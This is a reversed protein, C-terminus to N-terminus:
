KRKNKARKKAAQRAEEEYRRLRKETSSLNMEKLRKAKATKAIKAAKAVKNAKYLGGAVGGVAMTAINRAVKSASKAAQSGTAKSKIYQRNAKPATAKAIQTGAYEVFDEAGATNAIQKAKKNVWGGFKKINKM